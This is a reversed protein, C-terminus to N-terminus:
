AIQNAASASGQNALAVKDADRLTVRADAPCASLKTILDSVTM